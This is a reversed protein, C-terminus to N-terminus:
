LGSLRDAGGGIGGGGSRVIIAAVGQDGQTVSIKPTKPGKINIAM